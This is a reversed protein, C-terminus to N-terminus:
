DLERENGHAAPRAAPVTTDPPPSITKLYQVISDIQRPELTYQFGPMRETGIQVFERLAAENNNVKERSLAPGYYPSVITPKTHCVGCHQNYLRQGLAQTADLPHNGVQQASVEHPLAVFPLAFLSALAIRWM